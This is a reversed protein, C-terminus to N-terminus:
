IMEPTPIQDVAWSRDEERDLRISEGFRFLVVQASEDGWLLLSARKELFPPHGVIM